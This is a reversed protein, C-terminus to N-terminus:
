AKDPEVVVDLAQDIPDDLIWDGLPAAAHLHLHQPGSQGSGSNSGRRPLLDLLKAGFEIARHRATWDPVEAVTSGDSAQLSRTAALELAAQGIIAEPTYAKLACLRMVEQRVTPKRLLRQARFQAAGKSAPPKGRTTPVVRAAAAGNGGNRVLEAAFLLEQIPIPGQKPM